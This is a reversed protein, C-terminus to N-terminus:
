GVESTPAVGLQALLSFEDVIVRVATILGGSVTLMDMTALRVERGTGEVFGVPTHLRGTHRGCMDFAVVIRDGAIIVDQVEARLDDYAGRLAISQDVLAQVPVQIGNVAVPDTYVARFASEM